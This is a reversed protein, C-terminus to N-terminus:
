NQTLPRPRTVYTHNVAYYKNTKQKKIDKLRSAHRAIRSISYVTMVHFPVTRYLISMTGGRSMSRGSGGRKRQKPWSKDYKCLFLRGFHCIPQKLTGLVMHFLKAFLVMGSCKKWECTQGIIQILAIHQVNCLLLRDRWRAFLLSDNPIRLKNRCFCPIMQFRYNISAACVMLIVVLWSM